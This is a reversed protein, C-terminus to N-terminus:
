NIKWFYDDIICTTFMFVVSLSFRAVAIKKGGHIGYLAGNVVVNGVTAALEMAPLIINLQLTTFFVM